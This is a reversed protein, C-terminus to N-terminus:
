DMKREQCVERDGQVIAMETEVGHGGVQTSAVELSTRWVWRWEIPRSEVGRGM